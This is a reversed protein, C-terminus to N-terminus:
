VGVLDLKYKSIERSVTVLSDARYLSRVNWTGIRVDMKRLMHRKDLSDTLTPLGKHCKTVLNNKRHPTTFEVGWGWSPRGGRTPQLSSIRYIRV